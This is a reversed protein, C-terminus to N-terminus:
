LYRISSMKYKRVKSDLFAYFQELFKKADASYISMIRAFLGAEIIDRQEIELNVYRIHNYFKVWQILFASDELVIPNELEKEFTVQLERIGHMRADTSDLIVNPQVKPTIINRLENAMIQLRYVNAETRLSDFRNQIQQQDESIRLQRDAKSAIDVLEKYQSRDQYVLIALVLSAIACITTVVTNVVNLFTKM